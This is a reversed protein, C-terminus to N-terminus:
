KDSVIRRVPAPAQIGEDKLKAFIELAIEHDTKLTDSFTTWYLLAFSLSGNEDYGYFYTKPPPNKKTKSNESAIKNFLEIVKEPDANPATKMIIKSRRDRNTLTYNIVKKSILDGNPIIAEYGSYSKINSSRVGINTVVGFEQDIEITDGINIPREFALILGAVFNLVVNQLGFGIGVGLAGLMFGLKSLDIGAASLAMYLGISILIIRLLLSIAPAVGRPLINVMWEDQFIAAALKALVLSLIFIGLFALIGGLSITMEGVEWETLMLENVWTVIFDFVDFGELTFM